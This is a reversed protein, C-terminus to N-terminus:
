GIESWFHEWGTETGPDFGLNFTLGVLGCSALFKCRAQLLIYRGLGIRHPIGDEREATGVM